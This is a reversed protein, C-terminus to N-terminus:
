PQSRHFLKSMPRMSHVCKLRLITGRSTPPLQQVTKNKRHHNQWYRLGDMSATACPTGHKLVKVIYYEAQAIVVCLEGENIQKGFQGICVTQDAKVTAHKAGVKRTTDGGTPAQAAPLVECLEPSKDGM